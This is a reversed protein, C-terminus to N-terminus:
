HELSMVHMTYKDCIRIMSILPILQNGIGSQLYLYKNITEESM